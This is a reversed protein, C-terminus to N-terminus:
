NSQSTKTARLAHFAERVNPRLLYWLAWAHFAISALGMILVRGAQGSSLVLGLTVVFFALKLGVVVVAVIRAENIRLYLGIAIGLQVINIVTAVTTWTPDPSKFTVLEILAGIAFLLILVFLGPLKKEAV